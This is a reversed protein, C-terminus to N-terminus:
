TGGAKAWPVVGNLSEVFRVKEAYSYEPHKNLVNAIMRSNFAVVAAELKAKGEQTTPLNMKVGIERKAM